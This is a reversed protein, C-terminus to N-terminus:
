VPERRKPSVYTLIIKERKQSGQSLQKSLSSIEKLASVASSGGAMGQAELRKIARIASFEQLKVIKAHRYRYIEPIDLFAEWQQPATDRVGHFPELGQYEREKNEHVSFGNALEYYDLYLSHPTLEDFNRALHKYIMREDRTLNELDRIISEANQM